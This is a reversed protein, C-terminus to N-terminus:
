EIKLLVKGFSENSALYAHADSAQELTFVKDVVPKLVNASLWPTIHRELILRAEVKEHFPRSRLVTGILEIRKQLLLGLQIEALTGGSLGVLIIRGRAACVKIDESVYNGGVLDVVVDVGRRQTITMVQNAFSGDQPVIGHHMGLTGCRLLKEETRSTGLVTCGMGRGIQLAATGVGSGVAHILLYEGPKIRARTILADYATAFVEPISCAEADSLFDPTKAALLEHTILYEAYAGGGTLGFVRDGVRFRTAGPGIADVVGAYELGPIDPPADPPPPYMGMRQLLDARNLGAYNVRVRLHSHPPEPTPRDELYLDGTPGPEPIFVVRM